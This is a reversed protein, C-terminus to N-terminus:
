LNMLSKIEKILCQAEYNLRKEGLKENVNKLAERTLGVKVDVNNSGIRDIDVYGLDISMMESSEEIGAHMPNASILGEPYKVKGWHWGLVKMLRSSYENELKEIVEIQEKAMHGSCVVAMKFGTKELFFLVDNLLNYLNDKQVFVSGPIKEEAFMEMGWLKEGDKIKTGDTGIFLTPFLVGGLEYWVLELVKRARFADTGFILHEGHWEIPSIPLYVIPKSSLVERLQHPFMTEYRYKM